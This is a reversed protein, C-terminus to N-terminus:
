DYKVEPQSPAGQVEYVRRAGSHHWLMIGAPEREDAQFQIHVSAHTGSHGGGISLYLKGGDMFGGKFGLKRLKAGLQQSNVAGADGVKIDLISYVDRAELYVSEWEAETMAALKSADRRNRLDLLWVPGVMLAFPAGFFLIVAVYSLATKM